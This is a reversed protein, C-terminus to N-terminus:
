MCHLKSRPTNLWSTTLCVLLGYVTIPVDHQDEGIVESVSRTVNANLFFFFRQLRM